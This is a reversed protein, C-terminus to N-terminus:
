LFLWMVFASLFAILARRWYVRQHEAVAADYDREQQTRALLVAPKTRKGVAAGGASAAAAASALRTPDPWMGRVADAVAVVAGMQPGVTEWVGALVTAAAEMAERPCPNPVARLLEYGAIPYAFLWTLIGDLGSRAGPNLWLRFRAGLCLFGYVVFGVLGWYVTKYCFTFLHNLRLRKRLLKPSSPIVTTDPTSSARSSDSSSSGGSGEASAATTGSSSLPRGEETESAAAAAAPTAKRELEGRVLKELVRAAKWHVPRGSIMVNPRQDNGDEEPSMQVIASSWGGLKSAGFMPYLIINGAVDLGLFRRGIRHSALQWM